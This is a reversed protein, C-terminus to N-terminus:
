HPVDNVAQNWRERLVNLFGALGVEAYAPDQRVAYDELSTVPLLGYPQNGVRLAPLPGRARVYDIFHRRGREIDVDTLVGDMMHKLFYGWTAPWLATNM